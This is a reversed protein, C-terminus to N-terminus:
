KWEDGIFRIDTAEKIDRDRVGQSQSLSFEVEDTYKIYQM